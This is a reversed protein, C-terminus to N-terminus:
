YINKFFSKRYIINTVFQLLKKWEDYDYPNEFYFREATFEDGEYADSIILDAIYPNHTIEISDKSFTTQLSTILTSGTYVNKSFQIYIKVKSPKSNIDFIFYLIHSLQKKLDDSLTAIQQEFVRDSLFDVIIKNNKKFNTDIKSHKGKTELYNEHFDIFDVNIFQSYTFSMLLLYYSEIYGEETYDFAAHKSFATMICGVDMAVKLDSGEYRAVIEKKKEFTDIDFILGRVLFCFFISENKIISSDSDNKGTALIFNPEYFFQIDELLEPSLNVIKKRYYLRYLTIGQLMKLRMEQSSSLYPQTILNKKINDLQLFSEPMKSSFPNEKHTKNAFSIIVYLFFRIGLESGKFRGTDSFSIEGNFSHAIKNLISIKNYVTSSAFNLSNALTDISNNTQIVQEFVLFLSSKKIYYEKVSDIIFSNDIMGEKKIYYNGTTSALLEISTFISSLDYSLEDIYRLASNKSINMSTMIDKLFVRKEATILSHLLDVKFLEKKSVFYQLM